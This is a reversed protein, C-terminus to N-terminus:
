VNNYQYFLISVSIVVSYAVICSLQMVFSCWLGCVYYSVKVHKTLYTCSIKLVVIPKNRAIEQLAKSISHAVVESRDYISDVLSETLDLLVLSLNFVNLQQKYLSVGFILVARYNKYCACPVKCHYMALHYSVITESIVGRSWCVPFAYVSRRIAICIISSLHLMEHCLCKKSDIQPAGVQAVKFAM